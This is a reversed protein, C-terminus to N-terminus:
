LARSFHGRRPGGLPELKALARSWALLLGPSDLCCLWGDLTAACRGTPASASELPQHRGSEIGGARRRARQAASGDRCAERGGERGPSRPPWEGFFPPLHTVAELFPKTDIQKDAPLTQFEYELLLAM